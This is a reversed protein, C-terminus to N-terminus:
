RPTFVLEAVECDSCDVARLTAAGPGAPLEVDALKIIQWTAGAPVTVGREDIGIRGGEASRVRATVTWRGARAVAASYRMFEGTVFDSVYPTGDAARAIDVGDNRYTTGNNWPTREGGTAVHYNADVSDQYAVGPPGLDYDVAAITVPKTGLTRAVFSRYSADNPQRFM